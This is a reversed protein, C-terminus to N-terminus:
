QGYRKIADYAKTDDIRRFRTADQIAKPRPETSAVPPTSPPQSARKDFREQLANARSEAGDAFRAANGAAAEAVEAATRGAELAQEATALRTSAAVAQRQALTDTVATAAQTASDQASGAARGVADAMGQVSALGSDQPWRTAYRSAIDAARRAAEQARKAEADARDQATRAGQALTDARVLSQRFEPFPTDPQQAPEPAPMAPTPPPPTAIAVETNAPGAAPPETALQRDPSLEAVVADPGSLSWAVAGVVLAVAAAAGALLVPNRQGGKSDGLLTELVAVLQAVDYDWRKDSVESAQLRALGQIDDPLDTRSPMTAGGLLVPIVVRQSRLATAIELRTFDDPDDLRRQGQSSRANLWGPGTLALLVDSSSVADDIAKAFDVGPRITEIDMFVKSAGFHSALEDRLRGAWGSADARRYSIFIGPM